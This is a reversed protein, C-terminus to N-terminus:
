YTGVNVSVLSWDYRDTGQITNLFRSWKYKATIVFGNNGAHANKSVIYNTLLSAVVIGNGITTGVAAVSAKVAFKAIASKIASSVIAGESVRLSLQANSIRTTVTKIDGVKYGGNASQGPTARTTPADSHYTNEQVLLKIINGNDDDADVYYEKTEYPIKQSLDDESQKNDAALASPCLGFCLAFVLLLAVSRKLSKKM